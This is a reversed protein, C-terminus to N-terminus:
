QRQLTPKDESRRAELSSLHKNLLAINKANAKWVADFVDGVLPIAGILTEVGINFIMRMLTTRPIGLRNAEYVIYASIAGGITDGVGPILGIIADLGIRRRTGPIRISNDLIYALKRLRQLELDEDQRDSLSKSKYESRM